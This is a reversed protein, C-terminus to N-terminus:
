AARSSVPCIWSEDVDVAVSRRLLEVSIVLTGRDNVRVVTGEVGRLPGSRVVVRTGAGGYPWPRRPLDASAIQQLARVEEEQVAAPTSGFSVISVVGPLSIVPLRQHVDFRCFVYGPFLPLETTRSPTRHRYLPLCEEYGRGRLASAVHKEQRARVYLAYWQPNVDSNSLMCGM